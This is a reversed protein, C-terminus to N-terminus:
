CILSSCHMNRVMVLALGKVSDWLLRTLISSFHSSFPYLLVHALFNGPDNQEFKNLM